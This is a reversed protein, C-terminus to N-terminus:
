HTHTHTHTHLLARQKNTQKNTYPARERQPTGGLRSAHSIHLFSPFSSPLFCLLLNKFALLPACIGGFSLFILIKLIRTHTHTRAHTRTHTRPGLYFCVLGVVCFPVVCARAPWMMFFGGSARACFGFRALFIHSQKSKRKKQTAKTHTRPRIPWANIVKVKGKCVWPSMTEDGRRQGGGGGGVCVCGESGVGWSWWMM